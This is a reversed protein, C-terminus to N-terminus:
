KRKMYELVARSLERSRLRSIPIEVGGEMYAAGGSCGRLYQLNILFSRHCKFFRNDLKQELNEIRDYFDIVSSSTLHLYIKRDI